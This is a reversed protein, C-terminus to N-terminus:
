ATRSVIVACGASSRPAISRSPGPMRRVRAALLRDIWDGAQAAPEGPARPASLFAIGATLPAAKRVWAVQGHVVLPQADDGMHFDLQVLMGPTLPRRLEIRCGRTCVDETATTWTALKERVSVDFRGPLRETRRKESGGSM